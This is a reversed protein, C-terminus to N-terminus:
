LDHKREISIGWLTGCIVSERATAHRCVAQV